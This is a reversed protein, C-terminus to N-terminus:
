NLSSPNCFKADIRAQRCKKCIEENLFRSQTIENPTLPNGCAQCLDNEHRHEAIIDNYKNSM